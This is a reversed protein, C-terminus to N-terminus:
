RRGNGCVGTEIILNGYDDVRLSQGPYVVTVSTAEEIVAPGNVRSGVGMRHRDYVASVLRGQEDFDILRSGKRADAPSGKFGTKEMRAKKVTGFATVVFNVFEVAADPLCFTYALEHREDFAKRTAAVAVEDIRGGSVPTRVTHEQGIYRLDASRAFVVRESPIGQMRYVRLADEEMQRYIEAALGVDCGHVPMIRTQVFDQRLDTMLMGWASFTAPMRPVIVRPIKLESALFAGHVPGNGGMAVMAFDRPDHGRRVSVLKLANIMNNNATRIIGLAAEEVTIGFHRAIPALAERAKDLSIEFQGGLFTKPDIRGAVLNADTLTPQTGGLGYCAPGPVSGASQPGVKLVGVEDIWAISGGGAGIEIIDVVPVKVPYGAFRPTKELHYDTTTKIEGKSVLSTKATTGGIDLSIINAEGLLEAVATAGIVGGVPGSEILTIPTEKARAFSATGGNSQMAYPDVALGKDALATQLTDLYKQAAPKVYANLVTTSTREYERWEKILNSSLSIEVGPLEGALIRGCKREHEPNAYSHLFCVAVAEIGEKRCQAAVNRVEAEDLPKLVDGNRNVRESVEFRYKRPVFPVPKRYYYNYLDPRNARGIELVDRFGRTTILATRAGKRETVANIVVTTGHVFYTADAVQLGSKDITHLVGLAFNEPTTHAKEERIMGNEEDLSVLDTFTGGIDVALRLAM